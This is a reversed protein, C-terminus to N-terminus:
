PTGMMGMLVNERVTPPLIPSLYTAMPDHVVFNKPNSTIATPTTYAALYKPNTNHYLSISAVTKTAQMKAPGAYQSHQSLWNSKKQIM